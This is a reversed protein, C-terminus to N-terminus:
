EKSYNSELFYQADEGRGIKTLIIGKKKLTEQTRKFHGKITSPNLNLEKAVQELTM